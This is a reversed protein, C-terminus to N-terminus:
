VDGDLLGMHQRVFCTSHWYERVDIASWEKILHPDDDVPKGCGACTPTPAAAPKGVGLADLDAQIAKAATLANRFLDLQDADPKGVAVLDDSDPHGRPPFQERDARRQELGQLYFLEENSIPESM